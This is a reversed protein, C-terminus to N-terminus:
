EYTYGRTEVEEAERLASELSMIVKNWAKSDSDHLLDCMSYILSPLGHRKMLDHTNLQLVGKAFDLPHQQKERKPEPQPQPEPPSTQYETPTETM